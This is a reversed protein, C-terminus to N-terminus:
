SVRSRHRTRRTPGPQVAANDPPASTGALVQKSLSPRDYPLHAEAGLLTVPGRYDRQRLCQAVTLGAASAGVIVVGAAIM